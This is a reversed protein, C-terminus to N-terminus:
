SKRLKSALDRGIGLYYDDDRMVGREIPVNGTKEFKDKLDAVIMMKTIEKFKVQPNWGLIKRAKTSDGLLAPVDAPRKYRDSSVLFNEYNLGVLAFSERMFDRVTHTEGTAIVFDDPKEHQLIRWMGEVYEGSFGWDRKADLNGLVINRDKGVLIKALGMTIKRTVFNIGRRPSEHNFLIGNSAFIGYADRYMRVANFAAVKAVGYPSQPRFPTNENQPPQSTGFMESSSAQYFRCPLKMDRIADLIRMTGMLNIDLTSLPNQFSVAVHSQAGLNYIEDPHFEELLSRVSSADTLDGYQSFFPSDLSKVDPNKSEWYQEILPLIRETNPSSARRIMGRVQYGQKLLFEALYSGDQGGIGTIFAVRKEAM